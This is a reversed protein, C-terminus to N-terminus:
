SLDVIKDLREISKCKGTKQDIDMIVSNVQTQGIEPMEQKRPLQDVFRAIINKKDVGIVSDLAGCMGTDTVYGTGKELIQNDATPVHTHTGVMASVRGDAYFGMARKESTVEGHFDLLIIKINDPLDKLIEDLKAFPSSTTQHVYVQALLNIIAVSHVGVEIIKYGAGPVSGPWNAPRIIPNKDDSFLELSEQKDAWHNGTTIFDVGCSLIEDMTAKTIGVGHAANEGNAVVLNPKHAKKWQPLIQALAQRGSKGVIDGIFLIKM